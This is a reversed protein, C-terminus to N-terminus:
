EEDDFSQFPKGTLRQVSMMTSCALLFVILFSAMNMFEIGYLMYPLVSLVFALASLATMLIQTVRNERMVLLLLVLLGLLLCTVIATLIPAFNGNGLLMPDFYSYTEFSTTTAGGEHPTVFKLVGGYPLVMVVVALLVTTFHAYKSKEM